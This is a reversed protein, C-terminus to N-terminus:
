GSASNCAIPLPFLSRFFSPSSITSPSCWGNAQFARRRCISIASLTFCRSTWIPCFPLWSPSFIFPVAATAARRAGVRRVRLGAKELAEALKRGYLAIGTTPEDWLSADLAISIPSHDEAPRAM